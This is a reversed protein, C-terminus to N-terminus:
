AGLAMAQKRTMRGNPSVWGSKPYQMLEEKQFAKNHPVITFEQKIDLDSNM